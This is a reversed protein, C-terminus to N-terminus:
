SRSCRMPPTMVITIPRTNTPKMGASCRWARDHRAPRGVSRDDGLRAHPGLQEAGPDDHVRVGPMAPRCRSSGASSSRPDHRSRRRPPPDPRPAPRPPPRARAPAPSRPASSCPSRRPGEENQRRQEGHEDRARRPTATTFMSSPNPAPVIAARMARDALPANTVRTKYTSQTPPTAPSMSSPPRSSAPSSGAPRSSPEGIEADVPELHAGLRARCRDAGRVRREVGRGLVAERSGCSGRECRPPWGARAHALAASAKSRSASASARIGCRDRVNVEVLDPRDVRDAVRRSRTASSASSTSSTQEGSGTPRPSTM